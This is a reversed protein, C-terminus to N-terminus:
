PRVLSTAVSSTLSRTSRPAMRAVTSRTKLGTPRRAGALESAPVATRSILRASTVWLDNM